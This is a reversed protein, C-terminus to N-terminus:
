LSLNKSYSFKVPYEEQESLINQIDILTEKSDEKSFDVIIADYIYLVVKSKRTNLYKLLEKLIVVNRSTEISQILYNLLKPGNTSSRDVRIERKSIPDIIYGKTLFESWLDDIFKKIKQFVEFHRYEDPIRGYMAAFNIDKAKQYLEQTVEETNFYLKAMQTHAPESTLSYGVLNCLLRLHYGDYDFQVFYDNEPKFAERYGGEKPIATFNISNFSNTPRTTINYLNYHSYVKSKAISYQPNTLNYAPVIDSTVKVGQQEILYFVATADKNYFDFYSPIDVNLYSKVSNYIHQEREYLKLIPVISNIAKYGSQYRYFLDITHIPSRIDLKRGDLLSALLSVDHIVLTNAHYLTDKKSITYLYKFSSLLQLVRTYELNECESHNVGIIFGKKESVPHLYVAVVSNLKPHYKDNELILSLYCREASFQLLQELQEYTDVIVKM